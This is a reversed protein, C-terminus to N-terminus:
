KAGAAVTAHPPRHQLRAAGVLKAIQSAASALPLTTAQAEWRWKIELQGDKLSRGGIVVRLPIGILDADKFKVGPRQDRDDLLVDVGAAQLEGYLRDAIESVETERVNLPSLVSRVPRAGDALRHRRRRPQNRDARGHHPQRRHRLLGHHGANSNKLTRSNPKWRLRFVQHGAQVRPWDRHCAASRATQGCRPCPDAAGANRLDAFREAAIEFDRGLNVGSMLAQRSRQRRHRRQEDRRIDHDAWIAIKLGVPGAFGVPAGTAEAIVEPPALELKSAGIARRIKGENAEHDGRILVAVPQGDALYILTKIMQQPKCKLLKSVQEISGVNPTDLKTLPKQPAAGPQRGLTAAGTEARELNAAYGCDACHVVSDEGNEALVM